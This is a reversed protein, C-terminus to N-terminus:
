PTPDGAVRFGTNGTSSDITNATRAGLRYRNCYSEHCLYSGGKLVKGSGHDPGAPDTVLSASHNTSFWDACWEWVNGVVNYLGLDNPRYADVPATALHGDGLTNSHPFEGQWVNAHHEGGHELDDGWPFRTQHRGGRAGCEWQAETPLRLGVWRCYAVADRWSVHVVPHDGSAGQGDPGTPRRWTAGPVARWWPASAPREFGDSDGAIALHFVYSWGFREADTRFGTADVFSAFGDVTVAQAAIRFTSLDVPRIPGEGDEVFGDGDETGMLFQVAEITVMAGDYVGGRARDHRVLDPPSRNPGRGPSCCGASEM